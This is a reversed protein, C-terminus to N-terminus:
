QGNCSGAYKTEVVLSITFFRPAEKLIIGQPFYYILIFVWVSCGLYYKFNIIGILLPLTDIWLSLAKPPFRYIM